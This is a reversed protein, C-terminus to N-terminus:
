LVVAARIDAAARAFADARESDCECEDDTECLARYSAALADCVAACRERERRLVEALWERFGERDSTLTAWYDGEASVEEATWESLPKM